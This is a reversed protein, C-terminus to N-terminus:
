GSVQTGPVADAGLWSLDPGTLSLHPAGVSAQALRALQGVARGPDHGAAILASFVDGVGHPVDASTETEYLKAAADSVALCGTRNDGLPPSTLYVDASLVQAAAFADGVTAVDHGTLWALEFRNPTIVDALPVLRDRVKAAAEEAIYLGGPDDGIVPDVVVRADTLGAIIDATVEAAEASPMYGTLVTDPTWGNALVSQAMAALVEPETRAGAVHPFGPHNSLTVTPLGIVEHGLRHLVPEAASIGVHGAAVRSSIVLIRM